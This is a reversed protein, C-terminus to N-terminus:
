PLVGRRARWLFLVVGLLVAARLVELAVDFMMTESSWPRRPAAAVGNALLQGSELHVPDRAVGPRPDPDQCKRSSHGCAAGDGDRFFTLDGRSLAELALTPSLRGNAELQAILQEVEAESACGDSLLGATARQRARFVLNRVTEAPLKTQKALFSQLHQSVVSILQESVAAPLDSRTAMASTVAQSSEYGDLVRGLSREDLQAGENQVLRIVARENGTDILADSVHVSVESRQAVAVQKVASQGRVIEILDEDSLVECFKLIPLAVSEVDHALTLAVDHPLDSSSKLQSSLAERVRVEADQMLTRFIDEAIRREVVGFSGEDFQSAVKAALEARVESSPDTTLRVVDAQTLQLTM